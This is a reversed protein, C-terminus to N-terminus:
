LIVSQHHMLSSSKATEACCACRNTLAPKDPVPACCNAALASVCSGLNCLSALLNVPLSSINPKDSNISDSTNPSPTAACTRSFSSASCAVTNVRSPPAACVCAPTVPNTSCYFFDLVTM